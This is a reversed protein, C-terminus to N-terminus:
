ISTLSIGPGEGGLLVRWMNQMSYSFQM